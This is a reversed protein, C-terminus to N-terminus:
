KLVVCEAGLIAMLKDLQEDSASAWLNRPAISTQKKEENYIYVPINGSEVALVGKVRELLYEKGVSLKLFLKKDSKLEKSVKPIEVKEVKAGHTLPEINDCLIKVEEDERMSLKGSVILAADETLYKRARDFVTPFVIIEAQGTLDEATIFAMMKNNKTIKTKIGSALVCVTVPLGDRLGSVEEDDLLDAFTITSIEEIEEAYENLPHGSIYYGISEKEYKVGVELCFTQCEKGLNEKEM